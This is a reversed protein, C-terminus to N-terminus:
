SEGREMSDDQEKNMSQVIGEDVVMILGSTRSQGSGTLKGNMGHLTNLMM